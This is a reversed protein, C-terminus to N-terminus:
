PVSLHPPPPARRAEQAGLALEAPDLPVPGERREDLGQLFGGSCSSRPDLAAARSFPRLFWRGEHRRVHCRHSSAPAPTPTSTVGPSSSTPWARPETAPGPRSHPSLSYRTAVG